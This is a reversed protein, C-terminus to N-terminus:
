LTKRQITNLINVVNEGTENSISEIAGSTQNDLHFMIQNPLFQMEDLTLPVFIHLLPVSTAYVQTSINEFSAVLFIALIGIITIKTTATKLM